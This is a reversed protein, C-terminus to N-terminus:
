VPHWDASRPPAIISIEGCFVIQYAGAFVTPFLHCRRNPSPGAQRKALIRILPIM